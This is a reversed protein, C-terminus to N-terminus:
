ATRSAELVGVIDAIHKCVQSRIPLFTGNQRTSPGVLGGNTM